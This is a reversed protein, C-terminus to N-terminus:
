CYVWLVNHLLVHSERKPMEMRGRGRHCTEMGGEGEIVPKMATAAVVPTGTSGYLVSSEEDTECRETSSSAHRVNDEESKERERGERGLKWRERERGGEKGDEGMRGM